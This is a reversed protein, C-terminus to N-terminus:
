RCHPVRFARPATEPRTYAVRGSRALAFGRTLQAYGDQMPGRVNEARVVVLRWGHVTTLWDRRSEDGERTTEGHFDAGDYEAGFLLEPLGVDIFYSGHPAPVEIQCEPWPLGCDHWRLRLLSEQPSQARADALPALSRLQVVGRYRKFRTVEDLLEGLEFGDFRMLADLAGIAQDRHLLRGLDCATRLPSTVAVGGLECVDRAALRREGSQSLSNRLRVGPRRGYASVKPPALHDGPALIMPVGWLWGATRDTVVYGPPLVLRLCAVRLELGDELHHPVYVGRMPRRLQGRHVLDALRYRDLGAELATATTFPTDSLGAPLGAYTPGPLSQM